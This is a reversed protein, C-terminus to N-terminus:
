LEVECDGSQVLKTVFEWRAHQIICEVVHVPEDSQKGFFVRDETGEAVVETFGEENVIFSIHNSDFCDKCNLTNAPLVCNPSFCICDIMPDMAINRGAVNQETAELEEEVGIKPEVALGREEGFLSCLHDLM